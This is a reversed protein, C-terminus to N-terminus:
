LQAYYILTQEFMNTYLLLVPRMLGELRVLLGLKRWRMLQSPMPFMRLKRQQPPHHPMLLQPLLPLMMMMLLLQLLPLMQLLRTLLLLNLQQRLPLNRQLALPM